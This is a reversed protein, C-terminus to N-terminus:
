IQSIAISCGLPHNDWNDTSRWTPPVPMRNYEALRVQENESSVCACFWDIIDPAQVNIFRWKSPFLQASRTSVLWTYSSIVCWGEARGPWGWAHHDSKAAPSSVLGCQFVRPTESTMPITTPVPYLCWVFSARLFWKGPVLVWADKYAGHHDNHSATCISHSLVNLKFDVFSLATFPMFKVTKLPETMSDPCDVWGDVHM